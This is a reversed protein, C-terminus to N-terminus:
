SAENNRLTEEIPGLADGALIQLVLGCRHKAEISAKEIRSLLDLEAKCRDKIGRATLDRCLADDAVNM